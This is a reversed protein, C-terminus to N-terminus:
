IHLHSNYKQLEAWEQLQLSSPCNAKELFRFPNLIDKLDQPQFFLHFLAYSKESILSEVNSPSYESFVWFDSIYSLTRKEIDKECVPSTQNSDTCQRQLRWCARECYKMLITATTILLTRSWGHHSFDLPHDNIVGLYFFNIQSTPITSTFQLAPAHLTTQWLAPAVGGVLKAVSSTGTHLQPWKDVKLKEMKELKGIDQQRGRWAITM